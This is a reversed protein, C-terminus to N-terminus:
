ITHFHVRKYVYQSDGRFWWIPLVPQIRYNRTWICIAILMRAEEMVVPLMGLVYQIAVYCKERELIDPGKLKNWNEAEFVAGEKETSLRQLENRCQHLLSPLKYKLRSLGVLERDILRACERQDRIQDLQLGRAILFRDAMSTMKPSQPGFPTSPTAYITDLHMLTHFHDINLSRFPQFGPEPPLETKLTLESDAINGVMTRKRERKAFRRDRQRLRDSERKHESKPKSKTTPVKLPSPDGIQINSVEFAAPPSKTNAERQIKGVPGAKFIVLKFNEWMVTEFVVRAALRKISRLRYCEGKPSLDNLNYIRAGFSNHVDEGNEVALEQYHSKESLIGVVKFRGDHTTGVLDQFDPHGAQM